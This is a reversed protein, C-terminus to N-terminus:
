FKGQKLFLFFIYLFSNKFVRCTSNVLIIGGTSTNKRKGCSMMEASVQFKASNSTNKFLM